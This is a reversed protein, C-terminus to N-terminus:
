RPAARTRREYHQLYEVIGDAVSVAIDRQGEASNMWRADSLNTGFGVEVLIAPMYATSLVVLPSQKVGRDPGPHKAALKGQVLTALDFSERLHENQALDNLIFSLPDGKEAVTETEFRVVDNEMAAVRREDETRATSLFYTEVGRVSSGNRWNPNFANTHLSVFLDAKRANSLPGRDYLNILTDRRRTMVVDLGRNKLELEVALAMALTLKSENIRRGGIVVGGNGPDRGGHGADVAIVYRRSLGAPGRPANNAVTAVPTKSAVDRAPAPEERRAIGQFLQVERRAADWRVGVGFRPIIESFVQLPVQATGAVERVEEVLPLAFGNYAAFPSGAQFELTSEGLRLRWRHGAAPELSGGLLRAMVDLRLLGGAASPQLAVATDGSVGRVRVSDDAMPAAGLLVGLTLTLITVSRRAAIM